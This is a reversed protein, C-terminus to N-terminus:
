KIIEMLIGMFKRGKKKKTHYALYYFHDKFRMGCKDMITRPDNLNIYMMAEEYGMKRVFERSIRAAYRENILTSLTVRYAEMDVISLRKAFSMVKKQYKNM